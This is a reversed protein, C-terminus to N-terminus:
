LKDIFLSRPSNSVKINTLPEDKAVVATESTTEKEGQTTSPTQPQPSSSMIEMFQKLVGQWKESSQIAGL